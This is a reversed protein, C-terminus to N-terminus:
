SGLKTEWDSKQLEKRKRKRCTREGRKNNVQFKMNRNTERSKGKLRAECIAEESLM